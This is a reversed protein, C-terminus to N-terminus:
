YEVPTTLRQLRIAVVGDPNSLRLELGLDGSNRLILTEENIPLGLIIRPVFWSQSNVTNPDYAPGFIGGTLLQPPETGIFQCSHPRPLTPLSRLNCETLVGLYLWRQNGVADYTLLFGLRCIDRSVPRVQECLRAPLPMLLLGEGLRGSDFFSGVLQTDSSSGFRSIFGTNCGEGIDTIALLPLTGDGFSSSQYSLEGRRCNDFTITVEGWPTVSLDNSDFNPASFQPGSTTIISMRVEGNDLQGVGRLWMQNGSLDYTMWHMLLRNDKLVEFTVGQGSFEPGFWWAQTIAPDLAAVSRFGRVRTQEGKSEIIALQHDSVVPQLRHLREGRVISNIDTEIGQLQHRRQRGARRSGIIQEDLVLQERRDGVLIFFNDLGFQVTQQSFSFRDLMFSPARRVVWMDDRSLLYTVYSDIRRPHLGGSARSDYVALTNAQAAIFDFRPLITTTSFLFRDRNIVQDPSSTPVGQPFVEIIANYGVNTGIGEGTILGLLDHQAIFISDDLLVFDQGYMSVSSNSFVNDVQWVDGNKTLFSVSRPNAFGQSTSEVGVENGQVLVVEGDTVVRTGWAQNGPAGTGLMFDVTSLQNGEGAVIDFQYFYVAGSQLAQARNELLIEGPAGVVLLGDAYDVSIGFGDAAACDVGFDTASLIQQGQLVGADNAKFVRIEGCEGSGLNPHQVLLLDEAFIADLFPDDRINQPLILDGTSQWNILVVDDPQEQASVALSLFVTLIFILVSARM